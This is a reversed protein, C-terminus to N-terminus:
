LAVAGADIRSFAQDIIAVIRRQEALALCLFRVVRASRGFLPPRQATSGSASQMVTQPAQHM